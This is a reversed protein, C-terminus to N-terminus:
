YLVEVDRYREFPGNSGATRAQARLHQVGHEDPTFALQTDSTWDVVVQWSAEDEYPDAWRSVELDDGVYTCLRYEVAVGPGAVARCDVLVEDDNASAEAFLVSVDTVSGLAEERSVFYDDVKNGAMWDAYFQAFVQTFLESGELNLHTSDSFLAPDPEFYSRKLCNFDYLPVDYDVLIDAIADMIGFCSSEEDLINYTPMPLMVVILEIANDACYQCIQRLTRERDAAVMRGGLKDLDDGLMTDFPEAAAWNKDLWYTSTGHGRGIYVWGEELSDIAEVLDIQNMKNRLNNAINTPRLTVHYNKWSFLSNISEEVSWGNQYFLMNATVSAAQAPSAYQRWNKLFASNASPPASDTYASPSIGLIARKIGYDEYATRIGVFTDEIRQQPTGLCFSQTSCVEDLMLPNIAQQVYSSGIILTDLEDLEHYHAWEVQSISGYPELIYTLAANCAGLLAFALVIGLLLKGGRKEKGVQSSPTTQAKSTPM